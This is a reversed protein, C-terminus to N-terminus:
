RPVNIEGSQIKKAVRELLEVFRRLSPFETLLGNLENPHATEMLHKFEPMYELMGALLNPDDCKMELLMEMHLDLVIAIQRREQALLADAGALAEPIAMRGTMLAQALKGDGMGLIKDITGSSLERALTLAEDMAVVVQQFLANFQKVQVPMRQNAELSQHFDHLIAAAAQRYDQCTMGFQAIVQPPWRHLFYAVAGINKGQVADGAALPKTACIM